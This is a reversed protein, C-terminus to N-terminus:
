NAIFARDFAAREEILALIERNSRVNEYFSARLSDSKIRAAQLELLEYARDLMLGARPDDLAALTQYCILYIRLPDRNGTLQNATIFEMLEEVQTLAAEPHNLALKAAALGLPLYAEFIEAIPFNQFL